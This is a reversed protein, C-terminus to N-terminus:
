ANSVELQRLTYQTLTEVQVESLQECAWGWHTAVWAGEELSGALSDGRQRWIYLETRHEGLFFRRGDFELAQHRVEIRDDRLGVVQGWGIRCRELVELAPGRRGSRLLASWPYIALVHFSHHPVPSPTANLSQWDAGTQSEFRSRVEAAFASPDIRDLLSNGIWYAEVVADDLPDAIGSSRALIELYPWAGDFREASSRIENGSHGTVAGLLEAGDGVGCYGLENPPYAYRAFRVEGATAPRGIL